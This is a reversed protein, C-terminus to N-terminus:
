EPELAACRRGTEDFLLRLLETASLSSTFGAANHHGGGGQAQAIGAVDVRGRSRLSVRWGDACPRLLVAVEVGAVSRAFNILGNTAEPGCASERLMADTVTLAAARGAAGLELTGLARALLDLQARPRSEFLQSAVRWPDVGLAVLDAALRLVEPTTNQYRFSGTDAVVACYIAEALGPTLAVELAQLLAHILVGTAAATPDRFLWDAVQGVTAHHDVVLLAGLYSRPPLRGAFMRADACDVIVTLDFGREPLTEVVEDSGELFRLSPPVGDVSLAVVEQGRSRLGRSLALLSGIADGDPDPHTTVLVRAAGALLEAAEGLSTEVMRGTSALERLIADVRAAAVGSSDLQFRLEPTNRLEVRQALEARLFGRARQLVQLAQQQAVADGSILVRVKAHRLDPSADVGCVSIIASAPLRPDRLRESILEGLAVVLQRNIRALRDAM